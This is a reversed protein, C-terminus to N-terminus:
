EKDEEQKTKEVAVTRNLDIRGEGGKWEKLESDDEEKEVFRRERIEGLVKELEDKKDEYKRIELPGMSDMEERSYARGFVKDMADAVDVELDKKRAKELKEAKKAKKAKKEEDTKEPKKESRPSGKEDGKESEKKTENEIKNESVKEKKEEKLDLDESGEEVPMQPPKWAPPRVKKRSLRKVKRESKEEAVGNELDQNLKAIIEMRGLVQKLVEDGLDSIDGGTEAEEQAAAM